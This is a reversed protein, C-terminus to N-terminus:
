KLYSNRFDSPALGSQKKFLKSFYNHDAYGLQGAIEKVSLQSYVLLRKAELILENMLWYTVTFGTLQKVAENLYAESIHLQAAYFSPRKEQRIKEALLKKFAQTLQFVRSSKGAVVPHEYAKAFMGILSELLSHVLQAYFAADPDSKFQENLLHILQRFQMLNDPPLAVPQQQLLNGEFVERYHKPVLSTNVSIYWADASNTRINHHVQGPLLYHAHAEPLVVKVFDVDMAGEGKELLLFSYCDDRHVDVTELFERAGPLSTHGLELGFAAREALKHIPINKM